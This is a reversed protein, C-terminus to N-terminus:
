KNWNIFSELPHNSTTHSVIRDGLQSEFLPSLSLRFSQLYSNLGKIGEILTSVKIYEPLQTVDKLLLSAIEKSARKGYGIEFPVWWSDKTKESILSLIHSSAEIGNQICSVIKPADKSIVAQQLKLDNVDLYIDFGANNIYEGIKLAYSKDISIHSIFICFINKRISEDYRKYSGTKIFEEARNIGKAM